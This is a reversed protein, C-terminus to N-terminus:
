PRYSAGGRWRFSVPMTGPGAAHSVARDLTGAHEPRDLGLGLPHGRLRPWGQCVRRAGAAVIATPVSSHECRPDFLLVSRGGAVSSRVVMDLGVYLTLRAHDRDESGTIVM